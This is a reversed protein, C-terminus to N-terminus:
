HGIVLRSRKAGKVVCASNKALANIGMAPPQDVGSAVAKERFKGTSYFCYFASDFDLVFECPAVALKGVVAAHLEAETNIESIHDLLVIAADVAIPYIHRGPQLLQSFWAFDANGARCKVVDFAFKGELELEDTLLEDLIDGFRYPYIPYEKACILTSRSWDVRALASTNRNAHRRPHNYRGCEPNKPFRILGAHM